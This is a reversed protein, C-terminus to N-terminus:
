SISSHQYLDVIEKWSLNLFKMCFHVSRHCNYDLLEFNEKNRLIYALAKSHNKGNIEHFELGNSIGCFICKNGFENKLADRRERMRQVKRQEQEKWRQTGKMKQNYSKQRILIQERNRLYTEKSKKRNCEICYHNSSKMMAETSTKGVELLMGCKLCNM